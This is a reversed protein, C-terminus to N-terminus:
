RRQVIAAKITATWWGKSMGPLIGIALIGIKMGIAAEIVNTTM